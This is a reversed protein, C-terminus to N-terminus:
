VERPLRSTRRRMRKVGSFVFLGLALAFLFVAPPVGTLEPWTIKGGDGWAVIARKLVPFALVFLVAGIFMGAIGAVADRHGEGAAAVSTGPCYGLAV